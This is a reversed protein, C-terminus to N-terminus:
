RGEYTKTKGIRVHRVGERLVSRDITVMARLTDLPLMSQRVLFQRSDCDAALVELAQKKTLFKGRAQFHFDTQQTVGPFHRITVIPAGGELLKIYFSYYRNPLDFGSCGVFLKVINHSTTYKKEMSQPQLILGERQMQYFPVEQGGVVFFLLYKASQHFNPKQVGGSFQFEYAM